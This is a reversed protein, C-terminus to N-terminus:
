LSCSFAQLRASDTRLWRETATYIMSNSERLIVAIDATLQRAVQAALARDAMQGIMIDAEWSWAVPPQVVASFPLVTSVLTDQVAGTTASVEM